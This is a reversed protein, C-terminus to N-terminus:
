QTIVPSTFRFAFNRSKSSLFGGFAGAGAREAVLVRADDFVREDLGFAARGDGGKRDVDVRGGVGVHPLEEHLHVRQRRGVGHPDLLQDVVEVVVVRGWSSSLVCSDAGEGGVDFDGAAGPRGLVAEHADADLAALHVAVLPGLRVEHEQDVDGARHVLRVLQRQHDVAQLLEGALQALVVAHRDDDVGAAFAEHQGAGAAVLLVFIRAARPRSCAPPEVAPPAPM